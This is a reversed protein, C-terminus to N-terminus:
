CRVVSPQLPAFIFAPDCIRIRGPTKTPNSDQTVPVDRIIKACVMIDLYILQYSLVHQARTFSFRDKSFSKLNVVATLRFLHGKCISNGVESKVHADMESNGYLILMMTWVKKQFLYNGM